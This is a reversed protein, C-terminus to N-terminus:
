VANQIIIYVLIASCETYYYVGINCQMRYLLICWYQVAKQIIIYVLIVSSETYYYVGINCQM